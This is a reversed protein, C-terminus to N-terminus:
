QNLYILILDYFSFRVLQESIQELLAMLQSSVGVRRLEPAVSLATVHGHYNEQKGLYAIYKSPFSRILLFRGEVKGMVLVSFFM